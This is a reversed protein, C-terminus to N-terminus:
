LNGDMLSEFHEENCSSMVIDHDINLSSVIATAAADNVTTVPCPTAVAPLQDCQRRHSHARTAFHRHLSRGALRERQQQHHQIMIDANGRQVAIAIHQMLSTKFEAQSILCAATDVSRVLKQIFSLASRHFGGYTYLVISSFEMDIAAALAGYKSNKGADRLDGIADAGHKAVVASGTKTGPHTITVDSLITCDPLSVQLDPRKHDEHFLGRPESQVCLQM